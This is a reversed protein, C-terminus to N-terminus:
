AEIVPSPALVGDDFRLVVDAAAALAPRHTVAVVLRNRALERLLGILEHEAVDDLASTPEDLLVVDPAGVLARAIALRQRQGGSLGGGDEALHTDLAAPLTEILEKLGVAALVAHLREDGAGRGLDLNERLSGSLLETGQPVYAVRTRLAAEDAVGAVDVRVGAVTLAGARPPLLGLLTRVWSTKGAGSAGVVAVLAPDALNGDVVTIAPAGPHGIKLGRTALLPLPNATPETAPLSATTTPAGLGDDLARLRQAAARAQHLLAFAKPLLQAPTALLAVLTLYTVVEGTTTRGTVVAASLWTVLAAVAGFVLLQAVPTPLAAWATRGGLAREVAADAPAFRARAFPLAGFARLVERHRVGEQLRAGVAEVTAQHRVAMAEVRRNIAGTAVAAPAVLAMLGLTALPDTFALVALIGLATATEAFLTGLGYLVYTEVERLDAIVRAALGGSTAGGAGDPTRRLLADHLRTRWAAARRAAARGFALDQVFLLGAGAAAILAGVALLRPLSDLSGGVLVDDFVPTVFAPVLAVRTVAGLVAAVAGLATWGGAPRLLPVRAASPRTASRRESM